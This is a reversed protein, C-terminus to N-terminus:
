RQRGNSRKPTGRACSLNEPIPTGNTIAEQYEARRSPHLGKVCQPMDKSATEQPPQWGPIYQQVLATITAATTAKQDSM